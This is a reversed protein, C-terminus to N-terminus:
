NRLVVCNAINTASTNVMKALKEELSLGDRLKLDCGRRMAEKAYQVAIPNKSVIMQAVKDATSYLEERRVVRNVLGMRFAEQAGIRDGTLLLYLARGRGIARPLMQTGGAAPIMGLSVEPLGFVADDSAIRIDCFLALEMGSGFVYGHVAAILPQKMDNLLGWVDREWRVQRAIIPSPATGFETLDAGVCFAREGAGKFVVALVEADDRIAILVQYLEDRMQINYRNLVEPRNLVIYAVGDHKEYTIATFGSM